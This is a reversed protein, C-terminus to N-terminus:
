LVLAFRISCRLCMWMPLINNICARGRIRRGIRIHDSLCSVSSRSRSRRITISLCM